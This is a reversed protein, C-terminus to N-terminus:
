RRWRRSRGPPLSALKRAALLSLIGAILSALATRHRAHRELLGSAPHLM